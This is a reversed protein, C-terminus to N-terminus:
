SLLKILWDPHLNLAILGAVGILAGFGGIVWSTVLLWRKGTLATVALMALSISLTADSLDFQDDRFNLTDYKKGHQEAKIKIDAKESDYRAIETDYRAVAADIQARVDGTTTRALGALQARGLEALNQKISKSQYYSWTNVEESKEKVMAQCINDDKVKTVAMFAALIAVSVAVYNNIREKAESASPNNIPEKANNDDNPEM